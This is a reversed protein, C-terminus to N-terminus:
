SAPRTRSSRYWAWLMGSSGLVLVVWVLPWRLGGVALLALAALGFAAPRGLPSSRLTAALKWGTSLMLGAAAAAMGRLAGAVEPQAQWHNFGAALLLVLLLPAGLLGSTAACAGRWGFYRDGLIMSLNIVNPGPLVQCLALLEVFQAQTLWAEKEVLERQAIPLVGGFGQLAMRNFVRWLQAPSSPRSRPTDQNM